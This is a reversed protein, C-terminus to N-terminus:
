QSGVAQPRSASVVSPLPDIKGQRFEEGTERMARLLAPWDELDTAFIKQVMRHTLKPVLRNLMVPSYGLEDALRAWYLNSSDWSEALLRSGYNMLTPFPRVDLLERAYSQAMAPHPVGFDESLREWTVEAPHLRSLADLEKGAPGWYKTNGPFRRRFAAALYFTEAPSMEPIEQSRRARLAKEVRGARQPPMRESIVNMVMPRLNEDEVAAALLEEGARQYLTVAHLENRTVRWFRPLVASTVLSPVMEDWILAQVNEPIIFDQEVKALVYPLDALSGVLRAGRGATLGSGFLRPTQWSEEGRMTASGSFDHSRVLLPNNHLMQAGPPEYYAYNLGVLTDRLFAVLQGRAESLEAPSAHSKIVKTLDTRMQTATHRNDPLGVAWESRESNTFLPRPLEFERLEGALPLLTDTMAEGRAMQSLGDGLTFLTDLSVLRQSELVSRIRGTLEQRMKQGEPSAQPPGALLAIIEDQSHEPRDTAARLVEALSARGADFLQASSRVGAFPNLMGQWSENLRANSIQRQRALIQWLGVNAQFLGLANTRAARNPIRDLGEAVNLFRTISANDLGHFESFIEYQNSFRLFKDALLRVTQPSLRQEPSRGRDIDSLVLYVQLPGSGTNLRSLSFMGEVLQEPNNWHAARKTVDHATTSDSKRRLIEKWVELNGPISPEGNPQLQLRSLLLFLNTDSRFVPRAPSPSVDKGRLAEYFRQLRKPETFYAQQTPSVRSLADFYAALWAKDKELLRPVFEAPSDPSAGVLNKWASESSTGGPVIVKGNRICIFNGYYDLAAAFPALRPFGPSQRLFARTEDDIRALAWYLRALEPNRLLAGVVDDPKVNKDDHTWDSPIFLVPVQSAAYPYTFPKEERLSQELMALPFGSDLTLFAREQDATELLTDKGCPRRFRYGLITLLPRADECTPVDIVAKPGALTQLETAQQVYRRLLILFETADNATEQRGSYGHIVVNRALLPLVEDPSVKQSIAAM